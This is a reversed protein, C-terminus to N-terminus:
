RGDKVEDPCEGEAFAWDKAHRHGASAKAGTRAPLVRNGACPARGQHPACALRYIRMGERVDRAFM